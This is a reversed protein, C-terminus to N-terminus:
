PRRALPTGTLLTYLESDFAPQPQGDPGPSADIVSV